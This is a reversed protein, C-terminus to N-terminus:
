DSARPMPGVAVASAVLALAPVLLTWVEWAGYDRFLVLATVLLLAAEVVLLTRALTRRRWRQALVVTGIVAVGIVIRIVILAGPSVIQRAGPPATTLISPWASSAILAVGAVLALVDAWHRSSPRETMGTMTM